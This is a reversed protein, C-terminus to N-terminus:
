RVLGVIWCFILFIWVFTKRLSIELYERGLFNRQMTSRKGVRAGRMFIELSTVLVSAVSDYLDPPVTYQSESKLDSIQYCRRHSFFVSM